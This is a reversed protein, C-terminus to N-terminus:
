TPKEGDDLDGYLKMQVVLELVEGERGRDHKM